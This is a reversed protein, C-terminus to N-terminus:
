ASKLRAMEDALTWLARNLQVNESIGKVERTRRRQGSANIGRLGGRVANEQIRNFSSWLDAGADERRRPAIIQETTVPYADAEGYKAVLAAHAFANQEGPSLTILKMQEASDKVRGFEDLVTYAGEIVQGVIDGKHQVRVEQVGSGVVMGNCCVFRFMGALMQYSTTGDHSNVLIVEPVEPRDITSAHRLRLMHKTFERKGETRSNAQCAFFPEFGERRLASVVDITPVYTYRQSRSDHAEQAFMSPIYQRLQDDSLPNSSQVSSKSHSFRTALM